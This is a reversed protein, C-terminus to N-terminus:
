EESEETITEAVEVTEDTELEDDAEAEEKEVVTFSAIAENKKLRIVRVGKTNRGSIAVQSLPLRIITGGETIIM